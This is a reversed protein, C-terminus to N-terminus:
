LVRRRAGDGHFYVQSGVMKQDRISLVHAAFNSNGRDPLRRERVLAVVRKRGHDRVTHRRLHVAIQPAADRHIQVVVDAWVKIDALGDLAARVREPFHGVAANDIGALVLSGDDIKVNVVFLGDAHRRAVAHLLALEAFNRKPPQVFVIGVRHRVDSLADRRPERFDRQRWLARVRVGLNEVVPCGDRGALRFFCVGLVAFLKRTRCNFRIRGM